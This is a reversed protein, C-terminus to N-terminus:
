GTAQLTSEDRVKFKQFNENWVHKIKHRFESRPDIWDRIEQKLISDMDKGSHRLHQSAQISTDSIFIRRQLLRLEIRKLTKDDLNDSLIDNIIIDSAVCADEIASTAGQGLTPVTAYAADGLFLLGNGANFLPTTYQMRTWHIKEMNEAFAQELFKCKDSAKEKRPVFLPCLGEATQAHHPMEDQIAFNGFIYLLDTREGNGPLKMIGIRPLSNASYTYDDSQITQAYDIAAPDPNYLLEMDGFLDSSTDPLLLRFNSVGIFSVEPKSFSARIKSYRGDSAIMLDIDSIVHQENTEVNKFVASIQKETKSKDIQYSVLEHNFQIPVDERVAKYADSWRIGLGALSSLSAQTGDYLVEDFLCEGSMTEAYMRTRPNGLRRLKAELESDMARLSSLGNPNLNLGMGLTSHDMHSCKDYISVDVHPLYRQIQRCLISGAFGAGVIVIKYSKQM